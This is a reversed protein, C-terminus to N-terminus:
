LKKLKGLCFDLKIPGINMRLRMISLPLKPFLYLSWVNNVSNLRVLQFLRHELQSKWPLRLKLRDFYSKLIQRDVAHIPQGEEITGYNMIVKTIYPNIEIESIKDKDSNPNNQLYLLNIQQKPFKQALQKQAEVLLSSDQLKNEQQPYEIYVVLVREAERIHRLLRSVRREYKRRVEKYAKKLPLGTPIDHNFTIGTRQNTYADKGHDIEKFVLDEQNIFDKFENCVMAVRESFTAGYLWDLPYSFLQLGSARLTESCSCAAGIGFILNYQRFSLDTKAM